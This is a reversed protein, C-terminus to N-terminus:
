RFLLSLVELHPRQREVGGLRRQHRRGLIVRQLQPVQLARHGGLLGGPEVYLRQVREARVGRGHQAEGHSRRAGLLAERAPEVAGDAHPVQRRGGGVGVVGVVRRDLHVRWLM